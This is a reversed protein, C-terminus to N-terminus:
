ENSKKEEIIDEILKCTNKLYTDPFYELEGKDVYSVLNPDIPIQDLRPYEFRTAWTEDDLSGFLNLKEGCYKLWEKCISIPAKFINWCILDNKNYIEKEEMSLTNDMAISLKESHFYRM